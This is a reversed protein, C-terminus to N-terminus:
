SEARAPRSAALSAAGERLSREAAALRAGVPASAVPARREVRAPAVILSADITLLRMRMLRAVVSAEVLLGESLERDGDPIAILNTATARPRRSRRV